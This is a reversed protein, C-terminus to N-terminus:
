FLIKEKKMSQEYYIKRKMERDRKQIAKKNRKTRNGHTRFEGLGPVTFKVIHANRLKRNISKVVGQIIFRLQRRSKGPFRKLLSPTIEVVRM